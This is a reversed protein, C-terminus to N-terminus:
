FAALLSDFLEQAVAIVKANANYAVQFEILRAAEEDLNVGQVANVESETGELVALAADSRIQAQATLTGMQEVTQSYGETFTMGGDADNITDITELGVLNLANRNDSVGDQNWNVTFEDGEVPRGGMEFQFGYYSSRAEPVGNFIGGAVPDTELRIGDAMIIDVKGGINSRSVDFNGTGSVQNFVKYTVEGTETIDVESYGPSDLQLNLQAQFENKVDEATAYNGTMEILGTRGDPLYMQYRYPGDETFDFGTINNLLGDTEGDLVELPWSEGNSISFTDGPDIYANVFLPDNPPLPPSGVIVPQPKDGRMEILIDRGQEDVITLTEGDSKATIGMRQLDYHHNIRDALFNPNLDEPVDVPFGDEYVLQNASVIEQTLEYGNIWVEFDNDPSYPTGSNTFNGLQVETYARATVGEVRNLQEGIEYASASGLTSVTPLESEEGTEPDTVFFNFREPNIGNNLPATSPGGIGIAPSQPLRARWSSVITEGPDSTFITNATGPIFPINELPPSLPVPRGPDTNDLVSYRTESEFKIVLPPSLQGDVSFAQTDRSLM